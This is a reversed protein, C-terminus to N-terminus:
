NEADRRAGDACVQLVHVFLEVHMVSGGGDGLEKAGRSRNTITACFRWAGRLGAGATGRRPALSRRAGSSAVMNPTWAETHKRM